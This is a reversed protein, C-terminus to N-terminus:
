KILKEKLYQKYNYIIQIAGIIVFFLILVAKTFITKANHCIYVSALVTFPITWLTRILKRRYTLKWYNLEFGKDIKM